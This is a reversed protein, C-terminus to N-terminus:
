HMPQKVREQGRLRWGWQYINKLTAIRTQLSLVMFWCDIRKGRGTQFETLILARNKKNPEGLKVDSYHSFAGHFVAQTHAEKEILGKFPFMAEGIQGFLKKYNDISLSQGQSSTLQSTLAEDFTKKFGEPYPVKKFNGQFKDTKKKDYNELSIAENVEISFYKEFEFEKKKKEKTNFNLNLEVIKRNGVAPNLDDLPIRKKLVEARGDTEIVNMVYVLKEDDEPIFVMTTVAHSQDLTSPQGVDQGDIKKRQPRQSKHESQAETPINEDYIFVHKEFNTELTKVQNLLM